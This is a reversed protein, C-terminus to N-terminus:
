QRPPQRYLYPKPESFVGSSGDVAVNHRTVKKQAAYSFSCGAADTGSCTAASIGPSDPSGGLPCEDFWYDRSDLNAADWGFTGACDSWPPLSPQFNALRRLVATRAANCESPLFGGPLCLYAECEAFSAASASAPSLAQLTLALALAAAAIM